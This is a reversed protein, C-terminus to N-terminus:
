GVSRRTVSPLRLRHSHARPRRADDRFRRKPCGMSRSGDAPVAPQRSRWAALQQRHPTVRQSVHRRCRLVLLLADREFRRERPAYVPSRNSHRWQGGSSAPRQWAEANQRVWEPSRGLQQPSQEADPSGPAPPAKRRLASEAHPPDRRPVTTPRVRSVADAKSESGGQLGKRGLLVVARTCLQAGHFCGCPSRIRARIPKRSLTNRYGGVIARGAMCATASFAFAPVVHRHLIGAASRRDLRGPPFLDGYLARSGASASRLSVSDARLAQWQRDPRTTAGDPPASLPLTPVILTWISGTELM